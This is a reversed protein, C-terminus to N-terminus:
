LRKSPLRRVQTYHGTVLRKGNPAFQVTEEGRKCYNYFQSENFWAEMYRYTELPPFCGEHTSGCNFEEGAAYALNEGYEKHGYECSEAMEKAKKELEPSWKLPHVNISM